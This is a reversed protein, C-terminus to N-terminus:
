EYTNLYGALGDIATEWEKGTCSLPEGDGAMCVARWHDHPADAYFVSVKRLKIFEIRTDNM